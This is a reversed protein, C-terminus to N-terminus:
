LEVNFIKVCISRDVDIFYVGNKFNMVEVLELIDKNM